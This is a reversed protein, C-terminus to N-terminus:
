LARNACRKTTMSSWKSSTGFIMVRCGREVLKQAIPSFMPGPTTDGHVMLIKKGDEPGWEYIRMMGYLTEVDRAGPLINPPYPLLAAQDNPLHPLLTERPSPIKQRLKARAKSHGHRRLLVVTAFAMIILALSTPGASATAWPM